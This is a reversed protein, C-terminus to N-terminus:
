QPPCAQGNPICENTCNGGVVVPCCHKGVVCLTFCACSTQADAHRAPFFGILSGAILLAGGLRLLQKRM